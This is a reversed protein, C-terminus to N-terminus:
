FSYRTKWALSNYTQKRRQRPFLGTSWWIPLHWIFCEM